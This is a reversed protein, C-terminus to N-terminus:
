EEKLPLIVFEINGSNGNKDFIYVTINEIDDIVMQFSDVYKNFDDCKSAIKNKLNILDSKIAIVSYEDIEANIYTKKIHEFEAIMEDYTDKSIKVIKNM